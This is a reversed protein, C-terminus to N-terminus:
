RTGGLQRHEGLGCLLGLFLPVHDGDAALLGHRNQPTVAADSPAGIRVAYEPTVPQIGFDAPRPLAEDAPRPRPVHRVGIPAGTYNRSAPIVDSM